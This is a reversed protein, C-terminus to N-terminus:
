RAELLAAARAVARHARGALAVEGAAVLMAPAGPQGRLPRVVARERGRRLEVSELRGLSDQDHGAVLEEHVLRAVGALPGGDRGAFVYVGPTAGEAQAISSVVPGFAALARAAEGLRRHGHGGEVPATPAPPLVGTRATAAPGAGATRGARTSVVELMAVPGNRRVATAFCGRGGLPTLVCAVRSTRITMQEVAWPALRAALAAARAALADIPERVLTPPVFSVFPRGGVRRVEWDFAGLSTLGLALTRALVEGEEDGVDAVPGPVPGSVAPASVVPPPAAVVPPPAAVVPAPPAVVPPPSPVSPAPAVVVPAPATVVPEPPLVVPPAPPPPPPAVTVPPKSAVVVPSSVPELRVPVPPPVPEPEAVPAPASAVSPPAPTFPAPFQGIDSLDAAPVEVRWLEAPVQRVVEDMPLSLAWGAFRQRMEAPPVAFALEPFQDEILTWAIEVAGDALQPVVLRRPVVLVHPERMSEALREAPLLFADPPLQAAIRAFPVRVVPEDPAPSPQRIVRPPPPPAVPEAVVRPPEPAPVPFEALPRLDDVEPLDLVATAAPREPEAPAPDPAPTAREFSGAGARRSWGPLTSLRLVADWNPTAAAVAPGPRTALPAVALRQARVVRLPVLRSRWALLVLPAAVLHIIPAPVYTWLARLLAGELSMPHAVSLAVATALALGVNVGCAGLAWALRRDLSSHRLAVLAFTVYFVPPATAIKWPPMILERGLHAEFLATAGGAAAAVVAAVRLARWLRVLTRHRAM